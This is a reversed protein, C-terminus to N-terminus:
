LMWNGDFPRLFPPTREESCTMNAMEPDLLFLRILPLDTTTPTLIFQTKFESVIKSLSVMQFGFVIFM